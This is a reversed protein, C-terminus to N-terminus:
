QSSFGSSKKIGLPSSTSGDWWMKQHSQTSKHNSNYRQPVAYFHEAVIHYHKKEILWLQSQNRKLTIIIHSPQQSTMRKDSIYINCTIFIHKHLLFLPHSNPIQIKCYPYRFNDVTMLIFRFLWVTAKKKHFIKLLAM